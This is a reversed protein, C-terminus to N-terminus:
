MRWGEARGGRKRGLDPGKGVLGTLGTLGGGAGSVPERGRVERRMRRGAEM